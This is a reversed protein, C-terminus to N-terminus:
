KVELPIQLTDVHVTFVGPEVVWKNDVDVFALERVPVDIEISTKEGGALDVKTFGRLRKVSPTIRAVEDTIYVQVVEKGRIDSANALDVMVHITDQVGYVTRDLRLDSYEFTSYSLGFGFEWQPNFAERGFHIDLTETYKHDYPVLSAPYRPYTFPLKGSPNIEGFICKAFAEGGQDGPLYGYVIADVFVEFDNMILPRNFACFAVIPKDKAALYRLLDRQVIPLELADIDGPKETSPEEGLCVVIVDARDAKEMLEPLDVPQYITSGAAYDVTGSVHHKRIAEVITLADGTNYQEDRGQWTHTWAGNLVNLSNASPGCVLVSVGSDLPLVQDDNKLLTLSEEATLRAADRHAQSAFLPYDDFDPIPHDFLGMQKKVWLIRRCSENLREESIEGSKVLDILAENFTYDNPTMSMDIGADIAIKVAERMDKAVKHDRYLKIIDEWDTLAIGKFGLEHRLLKTLIDPDAHVPIGNVEGSNIMVTLAGQDIAEQFTPLFYERLQREPIWAPTRDKGSLPMSYGLFHKMCAAVKVPDGPEGQYGNIVARTMSRALHVDEGYTEFFRSWLPQRGLDLVPSFNWPIGSARCEYATISAAKQVLEPNWTAAQGIQQPFLTGDVTYNVGHIADIGYIVPIHNGEETAKTQIQTILEQWHERTYTHGGVNLISGVFYHKIASDLKISDLRHPEELNYIEGVSIVDINIQTMQGVKQEITMGALIEEIQPDQPTTARSTTKEGSCSTLILCVGFLIGLWHTTRM